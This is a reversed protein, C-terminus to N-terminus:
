GHRRGLGDQDDVVVVVQALRQGLLQGQVLLKTGDLCGGGGVPHPLRALNAGVQDQQVDVQGVHVAALGAAQDALRPDRGRDDHQRGLGRIGVGNETEVRPGVVVDGLGEAEGDKQGADAGVQAAM